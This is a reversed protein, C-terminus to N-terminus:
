SSTAVCTKPASHIKLMVSSTAPCTLVPIGLLPIIYQGLFDKMSYWSKSTLYRMHSDALYAWNTMPTVGQRHVGTVVLRLAHDVVTGAMTGTVVGTEQGCAEHHAALHPRACLGTTTGIASVGIVTEPRCRIKLDEMDGMEALGQVVGLIIRHDQADDLAM